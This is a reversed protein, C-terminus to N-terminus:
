TPRSGGAKSWLRLKGLHTRVGAKTEVESTVTDFSTRAREKTTDVYLDDLFAFIHDGAHLRASATLLARHQALSFLAPMLPDGQEGGEGQEIEHVEGADDSWLHCSSRGYWMRVYPVLAQLEPVAM